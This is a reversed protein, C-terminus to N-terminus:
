YRREKQEKTGINYYEEGKNDLIDHFLILDYIHICQPHKPLFPVSSLLVSVSM